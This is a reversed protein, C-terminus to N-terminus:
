GSRLPQKADAFSGVFDDSRQAADGSLLTCIVVLDTAARALLLQGTAPGTNLDCAHLLDCTTVGLNGVFHPAASRRNNEKM